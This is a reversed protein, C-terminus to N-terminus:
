RAVLFRWTNQVETSKMYHPGRSEDQRQERLLRYMVHFLLISFRFLFPCVTLMLVTVCYITKTDKKVYATYPM